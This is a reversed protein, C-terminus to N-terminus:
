AWSAFAFGLVIFAVSTARAASRVRGPPLEAAVTTLPPGRPPPPPGATSRGPPQRRGAGTCALPGAGLRPSTWTGAAAGAGRRNAARRLRSQRGYRIPPASAIVASLM